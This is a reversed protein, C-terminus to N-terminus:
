FDYLGDELKKVDRVLVLRTKVDFPNSEDIEFVRGGLTDSSHCAHMSMYGDYCLKIGCYEAGFSNRHNHGFCFAKIDGRELAARFLGSNIGQIDTDFGDIGDFIKDAGFTSILGTEYLPVHMVMIGPTKGYKKEIEESTRAYWMVQAFDIGRNTADVNEGFSFNEISKEPVSYTSYFKDNGRHSDLGWVTFRLADGDSAYVPLVWNGCGPLNEDGAKSLCLPFSEYVKQAVTNDVGFNDDHNGFVHAWPINKDTMPKTLGTLMQKLEEPTSIHILGPGANDGLLLVFDPNEADILARLNSVTHEEDYGVGGHIDSVCLIRFKGNKNFSLRIKSSLSSNLM